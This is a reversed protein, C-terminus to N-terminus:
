DGADPDTDISVDLEETNVEVETEPEPASGVSVETETDTGEGATDGSLEERLFDVFEEPYESHPLLKAYDFVLLRSDTAEALDRGERLPTIEAERGWVLTV